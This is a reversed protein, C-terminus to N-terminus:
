IISKVSAVGCLRSRTELVFLYASVASNKCTGNWLQIKEGWQGIKLRFLERCKDFDTFSLYDDTTIKISLKSTAWAKILGWFVKFNLFTKTCKSTNHIIKHALIARLKKTKDEMLKSGQTFVFM